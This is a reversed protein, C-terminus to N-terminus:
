AGKRRASGLSPCGAAIWRDVEEPRWRNLKGIKIPQPLNGRSKLRHLQRVSIDLRQALGKTTILNPCGPDPTTDEHSVNVGQSHTFRQLWEMLEGADRFDVVEQTSM